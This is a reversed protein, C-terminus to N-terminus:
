YLEETCSEFSFSGDKYFSLKAARSRLLHLYSYVHFYTRIHCFITLTYIIHIKSQNLTHHKVPSFEFFYHKQIDCLKM